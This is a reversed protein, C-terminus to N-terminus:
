SSCAKEIKNELYSRFDSDSPYLRGNVGYLSYGGSRLAFLVAVISPASEYNDGAADRLKVADDLHLTFTIVADALGDANLDGDAENFIEWGDPVFDTTIKGKQPVLKIAAAVRPTQGSLSLSM